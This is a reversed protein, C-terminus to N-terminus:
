STQRERRTKKVLRDIQEVSLRDLGKRHAEQRIATLSLQARAMRVAKLAKEEDAGVIDTLLAIPRGRATVVIEQGRDLRKWVRGPHLRLDRVAVFEM